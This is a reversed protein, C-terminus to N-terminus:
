DLKDLYSGTPGSEYCSGKSMYSSVDTILESVQKDGMVLDHYGSIKAFIMQNGDRMKQFYGEDLNYAQLEDVIWMLAMSIRKNEDGPIETIGKRKQFRMFRPNTWLLGLVGKAKDDGLMNKLALFIEAKQKIKRADRKVEPPTVKEPPKALNQDTAASATSASVRLGAHNDGFVCDAKPAMSRYNEFVFEWLGPKFSNVLYSEESLIIGWIATEVATHVYKGSRLDSFYGRIAQGLVAFRIGQEAFIKNSQAGAETSTDFHLAKRRNDDMLKGIKKGYAAIYPESYQKQMGKELNLYQRIENIEHEYSKFGNFLPM